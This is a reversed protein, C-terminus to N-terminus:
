FDHALATINPAMVSTYAMQPCTLPKIPHCKIQRQALLPNQVTFAITFWNITKREKQLAHMCASCHVYKHACTHPPWCSINVGEM